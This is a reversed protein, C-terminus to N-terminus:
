IVMGDPIVASKPIIIIGDRIVCNGQFEMQVNHSNVLKVNKGIRANKDVIVNKLISNDGIGVPIGSEHTTDSEYFDAGMMYAHDM